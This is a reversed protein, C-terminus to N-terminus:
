LRRGRRSSQMVQLAIELRTFGLKGEMEIIFDNLVDPYGGVAEDRKM